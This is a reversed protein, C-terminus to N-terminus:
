TVPCENMQFINISSRYHVLLQCTYYKLSYIVTFRALEQMNTKIGKRMFGPLCYFNAQLQLLIARIKLKGGDGNQRGVDFNYILFVSCGALTSIFHTKNVIINEIIFVKGPVCFVSMLYKNFSSILFHTNIFAFKHCIGNVEWVNILHIILSFAQSSSSSGSLM